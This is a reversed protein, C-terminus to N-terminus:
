TAPEMPRPAPRAVGPELAPSAEGVAQRSTFLTKCNAHRRELVGRQNLCFKDTMAGDAISPLAAMGPCRAVRMSSGSQTANRQM